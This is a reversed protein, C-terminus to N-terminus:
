NNKEISDFDFVYRRNAKDFGVEIEPCEFGFAKAAWGMMTPTLGEAQFDCLLFKISDILILVEKYACNARIQDQVLQLGKVLHPLDEHYANKSKQRYELWIGNAAEVIEEDPNNAVHSVLKETYDEFEAEMFFCLPFVSKFIYYRYEM